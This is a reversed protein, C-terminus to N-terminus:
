ADDTHRRGVALREDIGRRRALAAKEVPTNGHVRLLLTVEPLHGVLVTVSNRM